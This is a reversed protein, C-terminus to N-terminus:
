FFHHGKIGMNYVTYKGKLNEGLIYGTSEDQMVNAAEM